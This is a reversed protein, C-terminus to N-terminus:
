RRAKRQQDKAITDLRQIAAVILAASRILNARLTGLRDPLQRWPWLLRPLDGEAFDEDGLLAMAAAARPLDSPGIPRDSLPQITTAYGRREAAIQALITRM